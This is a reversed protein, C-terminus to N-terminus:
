TSAEQRIRNTTTTRARLARGLADSWSGKLLARALGFSGRSAELVGKAVM